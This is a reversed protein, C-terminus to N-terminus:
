KNVNKKFLIHTVCIYFNSMTATQIFACSRNTLHLTNPVYLIYWCNAEVTRQM